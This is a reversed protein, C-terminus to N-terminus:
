VGFQLILVNAHVGGRAGRSSLLKKWTKEVLLDGTRTRGGGGLFDHSVYPLAPCFSDCQSTM